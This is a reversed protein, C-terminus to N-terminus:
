ADVMAIRIRGDDTQGLVIYNSSLSPGKGSESMHTNLEQLALNLKALTLDKNDKLFRKCLDFEHRSFDSLDSLRQGKEKAYLFVQLRYVSPKHFYEQVPVGEVVVGPVPVLEYCEPTIEEKALYILLDREGTNLARKHKKQVLRKHKGMGVRIIKGGSSVERFGRGRKLDRVFDRARQEFNSLRRKRGRFGM